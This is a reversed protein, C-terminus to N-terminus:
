HGNYMPRTLDADCNLQSALMYGVLVLLWVDIQIPATFM